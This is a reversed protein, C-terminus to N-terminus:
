GKAAQSSSGAKSTTGTGASGSGRSSGSRQTTPRAALESVLWEILESLDFLTLAEAGRASRVKEWRKKQGAELFLLVTEDWRAVQEEQSLLDDGASMRYWPMLEEPTVDTRYTFAEGGIQFTREREQREKRVEDFNKM